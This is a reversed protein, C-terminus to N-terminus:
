SELGLVKRLPTTSPLQQKEIKQLIEYNYELDTLKLRYGDAVQPEKKWIQILHKLVNIGVEYTGKKTEFKKVLSTLYRPAGEEQSAQIYAEKAITLNGKEFLYLYAKQLYFPWVSQWFSQRFELSPYRHSEHYRIAKENLEIAGEIDNVVVSLYPSGYFYISYFHPDLDTILNLLQFSLSNKKIERESALPKTPQGMESNTLYRILLSDIITPIQGFSVAQYFEAPALSEATRQNLFSSKFHPRDMEVSVWAASTFLIGFLVLLFASKLM